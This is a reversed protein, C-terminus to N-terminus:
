NKMKKGYFRDGIPQLVFILVFIFRAIMPVYPALIAALIWVFVVNLSRFKLWNTIPKTLGLNGMEKKSVAHILLFNFLGLFILNLCYFVFPGTSSFGGVYIATSFPLLVVFLLLFINIWLLKENVSSVYKFIRLHSVWYLAIVLFSVLFGIFNPIRDSLVQQISYNNLVKASPVDIELVLLTMAISFVADCFAAVRNKDYVIDKM